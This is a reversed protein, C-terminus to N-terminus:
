GEAAAEVGDPAVGVAAMGDEEEVLYGLHDAQLLGDLEGKPILNQQRVADVLLRLGRSGAIDSKRERPSRIISRVHDPTLHEFLPLVIRDAIMNAEAWSQSASYLEVARGVAEAIPRAAVVQALDEADMVALRARATEALDGVKLAHRMIVAIHRIPGNQIFLSVRNKQGNTLGNWFEPVRAAILALLPLDEDGIKEGLKRVQSAVRPEAQARHLEIVALLAFVPNGKRYLPSGPTFTDWILRDVVGNVLAPTPKGLPGEELLVRAEDAKKPFFESAVTAIVSDIASRGQVPPQRLAHEIANRIHTRALEASPHYVGDRQFTPHACRNRDDRLRSLDIFQQQDFLQFKDRAATLVEREFELAKGIAQMNGADLQALHGDFDTMVQRAQADGALALERLKDVLDFVVAIWAAVIAARYAGGRYAILAEQIYARARETRCALILEDLDSLGVSTM